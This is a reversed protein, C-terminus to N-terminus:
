TVPSMLTASKAAKSACRKVCFSSSSATLERKAKCFELSQDAVAVAHTHPCAHPLAQCRLAVPWAGSARQRQDQKPRPARATKISRLRPLACAGAAPM